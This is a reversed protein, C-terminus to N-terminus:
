GHSGIGAPGFVSQVVREVASVFADFAANDRRDEVVNCAHGVTTRDRGFAAGIDAQPLRLVVHCVYMAIQRVHCASRRSDRRWLARDGAMAMMELVLQRVIRCAIGAPVVPAPADPVVCKIEPAPGSATKLSARRHPVIFQHM